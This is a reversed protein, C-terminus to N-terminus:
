EKYKWVFGASQKFQGKCCRMISSKDVNYFRAAEAGCRWEKIFKGELTYQKIPKGQLKIIAERVHNIHVESKPKGLNGISIKDKVEQPRHTGLLSKSRAKNSEESFHINQNGDGGDTLNTLDFGWSKFQSIWYKEWFEWNKFDVIDIEEILITNGLKLEKNIWNSTHNNYYNTRKNRKAFSIHLSLRRSLTQVTKGVYRINNPNNSSSMTYIKVNM